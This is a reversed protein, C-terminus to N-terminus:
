PSEKARCELKMGTQTRDSSKDNVVGFGFQASPSRPEGPRNRDKAAGARGHRGRARNLKHFGPLALLLRVRKAAQLFKMASFRHDVSSGFRKV